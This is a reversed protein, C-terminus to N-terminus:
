KIGYQALCAKTKLKRRVHVVIEVELDREYLDDFDRNLSGNSDCNSGVNQQWSADNFGLEQAILQKSTYYHTLEEFDSTVDSLAGLAQITKNFRAVNGGKAIQRGVEPIAYGVIQSFIHNDIGLSYLREIDKLQNLKPPVSLIKKVVKKAKAM